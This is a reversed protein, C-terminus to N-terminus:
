IIVGNWLAAHGMTTHRLQHTPESTVIAVSKSFTNGRGTKSHVSTVLLLKRPLSSSLFQAKRVPLIPHSYCLVSPMKPSLFTQALICLMALPSCCSSWDVFCCTLTSFFLDTELPQKFGSTVLIHSDPLSNSKMEHIFCLQRLLDLALAPFFFLIHPINIQCGHALISPILFLFCPRVWVKTCKELPPGPIWLDMKFLYFFYPM